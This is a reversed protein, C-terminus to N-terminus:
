CYEFLNKRILENVALALKSDSNQKTVAGSPSEPDILGTIHKDTSNFIMILHRQEVKQVNSSLVKNLSWRFPLVMQM